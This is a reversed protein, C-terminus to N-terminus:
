SSGARHQAVLAKMEQPIRKNEQKVAAEIEPDQAQVYSSWTQGLIGELAGSVFAHKPDSVIKPNQVTGEVNISVELLKMMQQGEQQGEVTYTIQGLRLSGAQTTAHATVIINAFDGIKDALERLLKEVGRNQLDQNIKEPAYMIMPLEIGFGPGIIHARQYPVNRVTGGPEQVPEILGIQSGRPFQEEAGERPIPTGLVVAVEYEIRQGRLQINTLNAETGVGLMEQLAELDARSIDKLKNFIEVGGGKVGLNCQAEILEASKPLTHPPGSIPPSMAGAIHVVEKQQDQSETIMDLSTMKYRDRIAPLQEKVKDHTMGKQGFLADAEAIGKDRDAQKQEDTREDPKKEGEKDDGKGFLSKFLEKGKEFM